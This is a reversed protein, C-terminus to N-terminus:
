SISLVEELSSMEALAVLKQPVHTFALIRNQRKAERLWHLMLALCASDAQKVGAFDVFVSEVDGIFIQVNLASEVTAYNIDGNLVVRDGDIEVQLSGM